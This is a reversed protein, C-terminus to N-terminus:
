DNAHHDCPLQNQHRARQLALRLRDGLEAGQASDAIAAMFAPLGQAKPDREWGPPQSHEEHAAHNQSLSFFRFQPQIRGAKEVEALWMAGRYAWPCLFDIYVTPKSVTM